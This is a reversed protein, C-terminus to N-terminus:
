SILQKKALQLKKLESASLYNRYPELLKVVELYNKERFARAAIKSAEKLTEMFLRRVAQETQMERMTRMRDVMKFSPELIVKHYAHVTKAMRTIHDEILEPRTIGWDSLKTRPNKRAASLVEGLTFRDPPSYYLHAEIIFQAEGYHIELATDGREYRTLGIFDKQIDEGRYPRVIKTNRRYEALGSFYSFGHRQELFRFKSECTSFFHELLEKADPIAEGQYQTESM